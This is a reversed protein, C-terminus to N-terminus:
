TMFLRPEISKHEYIAADYLPNFNSLNPDIDKIERELFDDILFLAQQVASPKIKSIKLSAAAINILNKKSWFLMFEEKDMGLDHALVALLVIENPNKAQEFFLKTIKKNPTLHRLHSFYNEGISKYAKAFAYSYMSSFKADLRLLLGLSKVKAYKYVKAITPFEMKAYQYKVTNELFVRLDDSDKVFGLAAHPELGFSHAFTGSPFSSDMIQIFKLLAKTRMTNPPM